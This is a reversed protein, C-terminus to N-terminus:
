ESKSARFKKFRGHSLNVFIPYSTLVEVFCLIEHKFSKSKQRTGLNCPWWLDGSTLFELYLDHLEFKIPKGFCRLFLLFLNWNFYAFELSISFLIVWIKLRSYNLSYYYCPAIQSRVSKLLSTSCTETSSVLKPNNSLDLLQVKKREWCIQNLVIESSIRSFSCNVLINDFCKISYFKELFISQSNTFKERDCFFIKM